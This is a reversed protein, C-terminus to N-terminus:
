FAQGHITTLPNDHASYRAEGGSAIHNYEDQLPKGDAVFFQMDPYLAHFQFFLSALSM